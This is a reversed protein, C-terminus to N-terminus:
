NGGSESIVAMVPEAKPDDVRTPELNASSVVVTLASPLLITPSAM